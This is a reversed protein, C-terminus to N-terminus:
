EIAEIIRESLLEGAKNTLHIGDPERIRIRKNKHQFFQLFDDTNGLAAQTSIMEVCTKRQLTNKIISNLRQIRQNFTPKQMPPISLWYVKRGNACLLNATDTLRKSYIEIWEPTGFRLIRKKERINQCDNAGLFVIVSRYKHRKLFGSIADPWDYFDPRSLGSSGKARLHINPGFKHSLQQSLVPGLGIRMMSDGILLIGGQDRYIPRAWGYSAILFSFLNLVILYNIKM